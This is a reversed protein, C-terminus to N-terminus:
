LQYYLCIINVYSLLISIMKMCWWYQDEYIIYINEKYLRVSLCSFIYLFLHYNIASTWLHRYFNYNVAHYDTHETIIQNKNNLSITGCFICGIAFYTKLSMWRLWPSYIITIGVLVNWNLKYFLVKWENYRPVILTKGSM